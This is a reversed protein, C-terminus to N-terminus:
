TRSDNKVSQGDRHLLNEKSKVCTIKSWCVKLFQMNDQWIWENLEKSLEIKLKLTVEETEMAVPMMKIGEEKAAGPKIREYFLM